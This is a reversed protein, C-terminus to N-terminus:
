RPLSTASTPSSRPPPPRSPTSGTWPRACSGCSAPSAPSRRRWIPPASPPRRVSRRRSTSSARSAPAGRALAGIVADSDSALQALVRNQRALIALVENTERLAPNAREIIEGLEDGRAAFGAGLENLILRFRDPYPEEMINNLLDLDVAKGNRELPLLYQGAGIEDDGIPELAPPAPSDASRPQTPECEVFKEGILSQPRILCSADARFDQFAPDDIRLVVAAKGPDPEGDELAPEENGTVTVDSIVGVNAGAVRVEEGEVLFGASDFIARVEYLDDEGGAASGTLLIAAAAIVAVAIAALRRM